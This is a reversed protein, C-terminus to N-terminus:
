FSTLRIGNLLLTNKEVKVEQRKSQGLQPPLGMMQLVPAPINANLLLEFHKRIDYQRHQRESWMMYDAPLGEANFGLHGYADLDLGLGNFDVAMKLKEVKLQPSNELLTQMHSLMEQHREGGRDFAQGAESGSAIMPIKETVFYFSERDFDGLTAKIGASGFSQGHVTVGGASMDVAFSILDQENRKRDIEYFKLDAQKIQTNGNRSGDFYDAQEANLELGTIRGQRTKAILTYNKLAARQALDMKVFHFGDSIVTDSQLTTLTGKESKFTLDLGRKSYQVEMKTEGSAVLYVKGLLTPSLMFSGGKPNSIEIKTKSGLEGKLILDDWHEVGVGQRFRERWYPEYDVPIAATHKVNGAFSFHPFVSTGKWDIHSFVEPTSGFLEWESAEQAIVLTGNATFLGFNAAEDAVRLGETQNIMEILQQYATESKNLALHSATWQGVVVVAAAVVWTKVTLFGM